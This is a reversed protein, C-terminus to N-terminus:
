LKVHGVHTCLTGPNTTKLSFVLCRPWRNAVPVISYPARSDIRRCKTSSLPGKTWTRRVNRGCWRRSRSLSHERSDFIRFMIFDPRRTYNWKPIISVNTYKFPALARAFRIRDPSLLTQAANSWFWWRFTSTSSIIFCITSNFKSILATM